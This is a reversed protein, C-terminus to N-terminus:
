VGKEYTTSGEINVNVTMVNNTDTSVVTKDIPFVNSINISEYDSSFTINGTRVINASGTRTYNFFAYSVGVILAVLVFLGLVILINEKKKSM